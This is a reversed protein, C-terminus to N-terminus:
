CYAKYSGRGCSASHRRENVPLEPDVDTLKLKDPRTGVDAPNVETNVHYLQDKSTGRLIEVVRNKHFMALSKMEAMAWSLANTSDSAIIKEEVWDDLAKEVVRGLNSASCLAHLENKPMTATTATTQSM